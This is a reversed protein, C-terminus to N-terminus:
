KLEISVFQGPIEDGIFRFTKFFEEASPALTYEGELMVFYENLIPDNDDIEEREAPPLMENCAQVFEKTVKMATMPRPNGPFNNM